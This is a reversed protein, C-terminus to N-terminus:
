KKIVFAFLSTISAIIFAVLTATLAMDSNVSEFVSNSMYCLFPLVWLIGAVRRAIKQKNDKAKKASKFCAFLILGLIVIFPSCMTAAMIIVQIDGHLNDKAYYALACIAVLISIGISWAIVARMTDEFSQAKAISDAERKSIKNDANAEKTKLHMNIKAMISTILALALAIIVAWMVFSFFGGVISRMGNVGFLLSLVILFLLIDLM